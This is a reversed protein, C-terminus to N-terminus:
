SPVAEATATARARDILAHGFDRLKEMLLAFLDALGLLFFGIAELPDSPAKVQQPHNKQLDSEKAHCNLCSTVTMPDNKRGGLHHKQFCRNDAEGCTVCRPNNTGLRELRAQKRREQVIQTEKDSKRPM